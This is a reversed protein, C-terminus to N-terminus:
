NYDNWILVKLLLTSNSIEWDRNGLRRNGSVIFRFRSSILQVLPTGLNGRSVWDLHQGDAFITVEINEQEGAIIFIQQIREDYRFLYIPRYFNSLWQCTVMAQLMQKETPM